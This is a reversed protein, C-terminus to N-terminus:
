DPRYINVPLPANLAAIHFTADEIQGAFSPTCYLFLYSLALNGLRM